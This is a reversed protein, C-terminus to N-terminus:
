LHKIVDKTTTVLSIMPGMIETVAEYAKKEHARSVIADSPLIVSYWLDGAQVAACFVAQHAAFGVIVITKVGKNKLVVDLGSNTFAGLLWNYLLPEDPRREMEPIVELAERAFASTLVNSDDIAERNIQYLKGYAPLAGIPNVSVNVFVVPLGKERFAKLLAQVNALMGSDRVLKNAENAFEPIFTGKGVIGQQMHLVVLAPKGDMEWNSM